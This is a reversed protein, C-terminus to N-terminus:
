NSDDNFRVLSAPVNRFEIIKNQADWTYIDGASSLALGGTRLDLDDLGGWWMGMKGDFDFTIIRNQNQDLVYVANQDGNIYIPHMDIPLTVPILNPQATGNPLGNTRFIQGDETVIWIGTEFAALSTMNSPLNLELHAQEVVQGERHVFIGLQREAGVWIRGDPTGVMTTPVNANDVTWSTQPASVSGFNNSYLFFSAVQIQRTDSFIGALLVRQSANENAPTAMISLSSRALREQNPAPLPRLAINSGQQPVNTNAWALDKVVIDNSTASLILMSVNYPDASSLSIHADPQEQVNLDTSRTYPRIFFARSDLIKGQDLTNRLTYTYKRNGEPLQDTFHNKTIDQTQFIPAPPLEDIQRLLEYQQPTGDALHWRIITQGKGAQFDVSAIYAGPVQVTGLSAEAVGKFGNETQLIYSYSEGANLQIDELPEMQWVDSSESVQRPLNPIDTWPLYHFGDREIRNFRFRVPPNIGLYEWNAIVAPQQTDYSLKIPIIVPTVVPDTPLSRNPSCGTIHWISLLLTLSLLFHSAHQRTRTAM